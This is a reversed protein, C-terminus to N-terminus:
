QSFLFLVSLFRADPRVSCVTHANRVVAYAHYFHSNCCYVYAYWVLLVIVSSPVLSGIYVIYVCCGNKKPSAYFGFGFLCLLFVCLLSLLMSVVRVANLCQSRNWNSATRIQHTNTTTNKHSSKVLSTHTFTHARM